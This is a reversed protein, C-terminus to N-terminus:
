PSLSVMLCIWDGTSGACDGLQTGVMKGDAPAFDGNPNGNITQRQVFPASPTGACSSRAAIYYALGGRVTAVPQCTVLGPGTGTSFVHDVEKAETGGRYTNIYCDMFQGATAATGTVTLANIPQKAIGWSVVAEYSPGPALATTTTPLATAPFGSLSIAGSGNSSNCGIVVLDGVLVASSANVTVPSVSATNGVSAVFAWAGADVPAADIGSDALVAGDTASDAQGAERSAEASADIAGPDEPSGTLGTFDTLVSCGAISAM